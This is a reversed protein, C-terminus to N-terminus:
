FLEKLLAVAAEGIRELAQPALKSSNCTRTEYGAGQFARETPVYGVHQNCHQAVYTNDGMAPTIEV